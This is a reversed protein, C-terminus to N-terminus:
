RIRGEAKNLVQDIVKNVEPAVQQPKHNELIYQIRAKTRQGMTTGGNAIWAEYTNRDTLDPKWNERFHNFTHEDGLFHGGPGIRRVADLALYEKNVQIGQQLRRVQGIFENCMVLLDFSYTLGFELYGVDHTLNTGCLAAMMIYNTAEMVAQEDPVKAASCGAFGWSPLQYYRAMDCIGAQEVMAEPASYTPQMSVLDMPSMGAGFVFPAGPNKLQHIVLGTLIEANAQAVAGAMTIPGTAGAMMGPAYNTPYRHEAMYLLKELATTSHQLPSSPEDYLVFIPKRSLVERGGVAAAAMEAIDDLSEKDAATITQPKTSNRIMVAYEHQYSVEKKVDSILGMSMTFDIHPLYDCLTVANEVDKYLFRRKEGTFSDLISPCDSGTGFYSKYGELFMAPKGNRDYVVVRSPATRIAWEVLSTPLYVRNGNEVYAGAKKLLAIAEDHHVITGIDELITLSTSHVEQAEEPTLVQYKTANFTRVDDTM